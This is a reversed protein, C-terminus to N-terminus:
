NRCDIVIAVKCSRFVGKGCNKMSMGNSNHSALSGFPKHLSTFDFTHEMFETSNKPDSLIGAFVDLLQLGYIYRAHKVPISSGCSAGKFQSTLRHYSQKVLVRRVKLRAHQRATCLIDACEAHGIAVVESVAEAKSIQLVEELM